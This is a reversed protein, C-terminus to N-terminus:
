AASGPPVIKMECFEDDSSKPPACRLTITTAGGATITSWLPIWQGNQETCLAISQTIESIGGKTSSTRFHFEGQDNTRTEVYRGSCGEFSEYLRLSLNVTPGEASALSGSVTQPVQRDCGASFVAAVGAVLTLYNRKLPM